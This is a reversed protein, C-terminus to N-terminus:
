PWKYEVELTPRATPTTTYESSYCQCDNISNSVIVWGRNVRTQDSWRRLSEIQLIARRAVDSTHRDYGQSGVVTISERKSTGAAKNVM